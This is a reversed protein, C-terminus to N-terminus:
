LSAPDFQLKFAIDWNALNLLNTDGINGRVKNNNFDSIIVQPIWGLVLKVTGFQLGLKLSPNVGAVVSYPASDSIISGSSTKEISQVIQQKVWFDAKIELYAIAPFTIIYTFKVDHQITNLNNEFKNSDVGSTTMFYNTFSGSWGVAYRLTVKHSSNPILQIGFSPRVFANFNTLTVDTRKVSASERYSYFIPINGSVGYEFGPLLMFSDLVDLGDTNSIEILPQIWGSYDISMWRYDEFQQLKGDNTYTNSVGKSWAPGNIRFVGDTTNDGEGLFKVKIEQGFRLAEIKNDFKNGKIEAGGGLNIFAFGSKEVTKEDKSLSSKYGKDFTDSLYKNYRIGGGLYFGMEVDEIATVGFLVTLEDYIRGLDQLDRKATKTPDIDSPRTHTSVANSVNYFYGAVGMLINETIPFQTYFEIAPVFNQGISTNTGEWPVGAYNRFGLDMIVDRGPAYYKVYKKFNFYGGNITQFKGDILDLVPETGSTQQSNIFQISAFIFMMLVVIKKM